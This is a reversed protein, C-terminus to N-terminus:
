LRSKIGAHYNSLLRMVENLERFDTENYTLMNAESLNNLIEKRFIQPINNLYNTNFKEYFELKHVKVFDFVEQPINKTIKTVDEMEANKIWYLTLFDNFFKDGWNHARKENPADTYEVFVNDINFKKLLIKVILEKRYRKTTGPNSLSKLSDNILHPALNCIILATGVETIGQIIKLDQIHVYSFPESCFKTRTAYEEFSYWIGAEMITGFIQYRANILENFLISGVGMFQWANRDHKLERFNTKVTYPKFKKFLNEEREFGTFYVSVLETSNKPLILYAALSDMGGSFNIIIKNKKKTIYPSDNLERVSVEAGTFKEIDKVIKENLELDIHIKDYNKGCLTSLAVALSNNNINIKRDFEFFLDDEKIINEDEIEIAKFEIKNDTHKFNDFIKKM